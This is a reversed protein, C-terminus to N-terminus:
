NRDNSHEIIYQKVSEILEEEKERLRLKLMRPSDYFKFNDGQEKKMRKLARRYRFKSMFIGDFFGAIYVDANCTRGGEHKLMEEDCLMPCEECKSHESCFKLGAVRNAFDVLKSTTKSM